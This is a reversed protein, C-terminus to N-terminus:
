NSLPPLLVFGGAIYTYLYILLKNIIDHKSEKSTATLTQQHVQLLRAAIYHARHTMTSSCVQITQQITIINVRNILQCHYHTIDWHFFYESGAFTVRSFIWRQCNSNVVFIIFYVPYITMMVITNHASMYTICIDKVMYPIHSIKPLPWCYNGPYHLM